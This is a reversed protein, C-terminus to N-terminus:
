EPPAIRNPPKEQQLLQWDLELETRHLDYWRLVHRLASLPFDGQVSGTALHVVIRSAGHAAHLHAPGHERYYMRVVVGQFRSIEPM